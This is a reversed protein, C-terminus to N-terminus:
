DDAAFVAHLASHSMCTAIRYKGATQERIVVVKKRLGANKARALFIFSNLVVDFLAKHVMAAVGPEAMSCATSTIVRTERAQM